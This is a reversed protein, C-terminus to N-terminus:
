GELGNNDLETKLDEPMFDRQIAKMEEGIWADRIPDFKWFHQHADIKM